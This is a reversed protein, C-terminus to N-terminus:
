GLPQLDKSVVHIGNSAGYYYTGVVVTGSGPAYAPHRHILYPYNQDGWYLYGDYYTMCYPYGYNLSLTRRNSGNVYSTEIKRQRFNAWYIVQTEYDITLAFTNRLGTNHLTMKYNGDLSAREIKDTGSDTWYLWRFLFIICDM